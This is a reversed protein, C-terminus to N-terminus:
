QPLRSSAGTGALTLGTYTPLAHVPKSGAATATTDGAGCGTTLKWTLSGLPATTM